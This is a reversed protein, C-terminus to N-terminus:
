IFIINGDLHKLIKEKNHSKSLIVDGVFCKHFLNVYDELNDFNFNSLDLKKPCSFVFMNHM